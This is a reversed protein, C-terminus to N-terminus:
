EQSPQYRTNRALAAKDLCQSGTQGDNKQSEQHKRLAPPLTHSGYCGRSCEQTPVMKAGVIPPHPQSLRMLVLAQEFNYMFGLKFCQTGRTCSFQPLNPNGPFISSLQAPVM